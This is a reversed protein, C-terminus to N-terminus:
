ESLLSVRLLHVSSREYSCMYPLLNPVQTKATVDVVSLMSKGAVTLFYNFTDLNRIVTAIYATPAERKDEGFSDSDLLISFVRVLDPICEPNYIIDAGLSHVCVFFLILSVIITKKM